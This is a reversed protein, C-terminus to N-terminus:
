AAACDKKEGPERPRSRGGWTKDLEELAARCLGMNDESGRLAAVTNDRISGIDGILATVAPLQESTTHSAEVIRDALARATECLERAASSCRRSDEINDNMASEIREVEVIFGGIAGELSTTVKQSDELDKSSRDALARVEDAVVAFGRGAEGARAAEISANLAVLRIQVALEQVRANAECMDDVTGRMAGVAERVAKLENATEEIGSAVSQVQGTVTELGSGIDTAASRTAQADQSLHEVADNVEAARDMLASIFELHEGSSDCVTRSKRFLARLRDRAGELAQIIVDRDAEARRAFESLEAAKEEAARTEAQAEAVPAECKDEQMAIRASLEEVEARLAAVTEAHRAAVRGAARAHRWAVFRLVILPVAFSAALWIWDVPAAGTLAQWQMLVGLIAGIVVAGALPGALGPRPSEIRSPEM